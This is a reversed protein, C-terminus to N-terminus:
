SRFHACETYVSGSPHKGQVEEVPSYKPSAVNRNKSHLKFFFFFPEASHKLSFLFIISEMIFPLPM